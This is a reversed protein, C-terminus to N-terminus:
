GRPQGDPAGAGPRDQHPPIPTKGRPGQPLPLPPSPPPLYTAPAATDQPPPGPPPRPAPRAPAGARSSPLDTSSGRQCEKGAGPANRYSRRRRHADHRRRTPTTDADHRRRTPTTHADSRGEAQPLAPGQPYRRVLRWEEDGRAELRAESGAEQERWGQGRGRGPGQGM